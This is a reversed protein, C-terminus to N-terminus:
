VFELFFISKKNWNYHEGVCDIFLTSGGYDIMQKTGYYRLHDLLESSNLLHPVSDFVNKNKRYLMKNRHYSYDHPLFRTDCDFWCM